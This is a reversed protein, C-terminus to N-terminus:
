PPTFYIAEAPLGEPCLSAFSHISAASKPNNSSTPAYKMRLTIFGCNSLRVNGVSVGILIVAGVVPPVPPVVPPVVAVPQAPLPHWFRAASPNVQLGALWCGFPCALQEAAGSITLVNFQM